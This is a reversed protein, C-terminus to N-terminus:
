QGVVALVMVNSGGGDPSVTVTLTHGTSDQKGSILGGQDSSATLGMKYGAARMQETYFTMVKSPTDPTKFTYGGQKGKGTEMSFNGEAKSGPYQPAWDPMQTTMNAGIRTTGEKTEVEISGKDGEGNLRVTAVKGDENVVVMTKKEPDFKLTVEKGSDKERIKIIGKSDDSSIVEVGPAMTAGMKAIAYAPNQKALDSDFGANQVKKGIFYAIGGCTVLGGIMLVAIGGFIWVLINTKKAPPLPPQVPNQYSPPQPQFPPPQSSM